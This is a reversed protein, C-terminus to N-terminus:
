GYCSPLRPLRPLPQLLRPHRSDCRFYSFHRAGCWESKSEITACAVSGLAVRGACACRLATARVGATGEQSQSRIVTHTLEPNLTALVSNHLRPGLAPFHRLRPSPDGSSAGGGTGRYPKVSNHFRVSLYCHVFYLFYGLVICSELSKARQRCYFSRLESRLRVTESEVVAGLRTGRDSEMRAFDSAM